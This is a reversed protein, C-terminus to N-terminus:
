TLQPRNIILSLVAKVPSMLAGGIITETPKEHISPRRFLSGEDQLEVLEIPEKLLHFNRAGQFLQSIRYCEEPNLYDHHEFCTSEQRFLAM